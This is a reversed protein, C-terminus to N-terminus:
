EEIRRRPARRLRYTEELFKDLEEAEEACAGFSRRLGLPVKAYERVVAVDEPRLEPHLQLLEQDSRGTETEEVLADGLLRTGKIVYKGVKVTPDVDLRELWWPLAPPPAPTTDITVEVPLGEPLGPDHTLEIMKGHIVGRLTMQM